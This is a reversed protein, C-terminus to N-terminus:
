TLHALRPPVECVWCSFVNQTVVGRGHTGRAAHSLHERGGAKDRDPAVEALRLTTLSMGQNGPAQYAGALHAGHVAGQDAAQQAAGATPSFPLPSATNSSAPNILTKRLQAAPRRGFCCAILPSYQTRYM